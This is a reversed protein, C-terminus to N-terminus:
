LFLFELANKCFFDLVDDDKETVKWSKEHREMVKATKWSKGPRSFPRVLNWSKGPLTTVRHAVSTCSIVTLITISNRRLTRSLQSRPGQFYKFKTKQLFCCGGGRWTVYLKKAHPEDDNVLSAYISFLVFSIVYPSSLLSSSSSFWRPLQVWRFAGSPRRIQVCGCM